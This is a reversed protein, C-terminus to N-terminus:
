HKLSFRSLQTRTNKWVACHQSKCLKPLSAHAITSLTDQLLRQCVRTHTCISKVTKCYSSFVIRYKATRELAMCWKLCSGTHTSVDELIKCYNAVSPLIKCFVRKLTTLVVNHTPPQLKGNIAIKPGSEAQNWSACIHTNELCDSARDINTVFKNGLKFLQGTAVSKLLKEQAFSKLKTLNQTSKYSWKQRSNRACVPFTQKSTLCSARKHKSTNRARVTSLQPSM